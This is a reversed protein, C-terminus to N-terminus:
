HALHMLQCWVVMDTAVRLEEGTYYMQYDPSSHIAVKRPYVKREVSDGSTTFLSALAFSVPFGRANESWIPMAQGIVTMEGPFPLPFQNEINM